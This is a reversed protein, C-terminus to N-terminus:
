PFIEYIPVITVEMPKIYSIHSDCSVVLNMEVYVPVLVLGIIFSLHARDDRIRGFSRCTARATVVTGNLALVVPVIIHILVPCIGLKDPTRCFGSPTPGPPPCIRLYPYISGLRSILLIRHPCPPRRLCSSNGHASAHGFRIQSTSVTHVYPYHLVILNARRKPFFRNRAIVIRIVFEIQRINGNLSIILDVEM